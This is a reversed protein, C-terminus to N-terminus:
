IHILSLEYDAIPLGPWESLFACNDYFPTMDMQCVILPQKAAALASVNPSHTHVISNIDPRNEYVWLHFRTAPNAMGSGSLTHLDRDVEIFDEPTAEDFGLGFRLTWYFEKGRDSRASIQGALGAEGEHLAIIRCAQALTEKLTRQQTPLHQAMEESARKQFYDKDRLDDM